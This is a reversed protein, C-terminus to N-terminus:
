SMKFQFPIGFCTHAHENMLIKKQKFLGLTWFPVLYYFSGSLFVYQSLFILFSVSNGYYFIFQGPSLIVSIFFHFLFLFGLSDIINPTWLSYCFFFFNMQNMRNEVKKVIQHYIDPTHFRRKLHISGAQVLNYIRINGYIKSNLNKRFFGMM